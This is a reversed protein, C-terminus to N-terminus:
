SAEGALIEDCLGLCDHCIRADDHAASPTSTGPEKGCFRCAATTTSWGAPTAGRIARRADAVCEDCIHVNPGAILKAVATHDRGCFSCALQKASRGRRKWGRGDDVSELLQQVRQHSMGIAKGISRVSGGALQLRRVAHRVDAKAVDVDRELAAVREMAAEAQALLDRDLDNM